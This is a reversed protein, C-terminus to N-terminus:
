TQEKGYSDLPIDQSNFCPTNWFHCCSLPRWLVNRLLNQNYSICKNQHYNVSKHLFVWEPFVRNIYLLYISLSAYTFLLLDMFVPFFWQLLHLCWVFWVCSEKYGPSNQITINAKFLCIGWSGILVTFLSSPVESNM